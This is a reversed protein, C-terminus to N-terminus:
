FHKTDSIYRTQPLLMAQMYAEHSTLHLLKHMLFTSWSGDVAHACWWAQELDCQSFQIKQCVRRWEAWTDVVWECSGITDTSHITSEAWDYLRSEKTLVSDWETLNTPIVLVHSWQCVHACQSSGCDSLKISHTLIPLFYEQIDFMYMCFSLMLWKSANLYMAIMMRTKECLWSRICKQLIM